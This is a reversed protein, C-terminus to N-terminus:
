RGQRLDALAHTLDMSSRKVAASERPHDYIVTGARQALTDVPERKEAMQLKRAARLFREAEAIAVSLTTHRM